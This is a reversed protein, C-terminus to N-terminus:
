LLTYVALNQDADPFLDFVIELNTVNGSDMTITFNSVPRANPYFMQVFEDEGGDKPRIFTDGIIEFAEPHKNAKIELTKATVATEAQYYVVFVANEPATAANLTIKQGTLSYENENQTPDGVLQEEAHTVKDDLLQFISVSGAKPTSPLTISNAADATLEKRVFMDTKGKSWDAGALMALWKLDFVELSVTLKGQKNNDWRIARSGKVNAYVQDSTWENTTVNAYPTYLFIGKDSKKRITLNAADKIGYNM